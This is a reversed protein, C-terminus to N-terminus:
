RAWRTATIADRATAAILQAGAIRPLGSPIHMRRPAGASSQAAAAATAMEAHLLAGYRRPNYVAQKATLELTLSISFQGCPM